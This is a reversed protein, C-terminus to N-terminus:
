GLTAIKFARLAGGLASRETKMESDENRMVKPEASM